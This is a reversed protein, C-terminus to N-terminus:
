PQKALLEKLMMGQEQLMGMMVQQNSELKDMRTELGDMRTELGDMRTEIGDLRNEMKTMRCNFQEKLVTMETCLNASQRHLDYFYKHCDRELEAMRSNLNGSVEHSVARFAKGSDVGLEILIDYMQSNM